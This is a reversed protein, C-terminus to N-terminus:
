RAEMDDGHTFKAYWEVSERTPNWLVPPRPHPHSVMDKLAFLVALVFVSLVISM